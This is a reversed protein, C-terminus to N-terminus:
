SLSLFLVHYMDLFPKIMALVGGDDYHWQKAANAIMNRRVEKGKNGETNRGCKSESAM